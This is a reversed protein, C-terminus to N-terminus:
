EFSSSFSASVTGTYFTGSVPIYNAYQIDTLTHYCDNSGTAYMYSKCGVTLFCNECCSFRNLNNVKSQLVWNISTDYYWRENENCKWYPLPSNHGLFYDLKTELSKTNSYFQCTNNFLHWANCGASALAHCYECCTGLNLGENLGSLALTTIPSAASIKKGQVFFCKNAVVSYESLAQASFIVSNLIIVVSNFINKM